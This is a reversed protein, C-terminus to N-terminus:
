EERYLSVAVPHGSLQRATLFQAFGEKVPGSLSNEVLFISQLAPLVDMIREGSLGQLVHVVRPTFEWSLSLRKVTTFPRLLELWQASEVDEQWHPRSYWDEGIELHELNFFSLFPSDCVQALSSLQWDSPKCRITLNLGTRGLTGHFIKVANYYFAMRAQSQSRLKEARSIFSWLRPTNFILQNFFTIDLIRLLPADIRSTLDELYESVGKFEFHDLAPLVTRISRPPSPQDPRSRPSQFQITLYELRTLASLGTVMAEPSIYGSHPIDILYLTVLDSASSLLKPIAPFSIRSFWLTQLRPASGGLFSDPLVLATDKGGFHLDTLEPFPENMAAAFRDSHSIRTNWLDIRRVRDPHKLAAVVNDAEEREWFLGGREIIIPLAPWIDLM